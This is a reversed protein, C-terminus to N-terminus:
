RCPAGRYPRQAARRRARRHSSDRGHPPHCHRHGARKKAVATRTRFLRNVQRSDLSATAEDLILLRPALSLGKLIETAIQKQDPPLQAVPVDPGLGASIARSSRLAWTRATVESHRVAIRGRLPEHALWINEAVTMDPILSLEQYVATIGCAAGRPAIFFARRLRLNVATPPSSARRIKSLTSKGSGNAGVLAVVEGSDVTLSGDALAVVGGYRKTLHTASLLTPM